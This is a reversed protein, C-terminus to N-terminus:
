FGNIQEKFQSKPILHHATQGPCCGKNNNRNTPLLPKKNDKYPVLMCKRARLCPSAAAVIAQADAMSKPTLGQERIEAIKDPLKRLEDIQTQLEDLMDYMEKVELGTSVVDYATWAWGIPGMWAKLASKAVLKAATKAAFEKAKEIAADKAAQLIGATQKSVDSLNNLEEKIKEPDYNDSHPPKVSLAKCYATKWAGKSRDPVRRGNVKKKPKCKKEVREFDKRCAGRRTQTDIFKWTGTNGPASGHNHTTMDTHRDVNKGEVKVNMSWSTFYAKGKKVGTVVGKPGAAPENGTSTKFYSVDKKMVPKGTIFVTKSGKTTDKAYATNAYPVVIWGAPPSPPTFCPDPFCAVSKGDAAKCAIELGNAFVDNAM